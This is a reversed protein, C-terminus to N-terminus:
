PVTHDNMSLLLNLYFNIVVFFYYILTHDTQQTLIM